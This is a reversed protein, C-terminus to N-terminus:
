EFIGVSDFFVELTVSAPLHGSHHLEALLDKARIVHRALKSPDTNRMIAECLERLRERKAGPVGDEIAAIIEDINSAILDKKTVGRKRLARALRPIAKLIAKLQYTTTVESSELAEAIDSITKGANSIRERIMKLENATVHRDFWESLQDRENNRLATAIKSPLDNMSTVKAPDFTGLSKQKCRTIVKDYEARLLQVHGNKEHQKIQM